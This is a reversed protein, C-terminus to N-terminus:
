EYVKVKKFHRMNVISNKIQFISYIIVSSCFAGFICIVIQLGINKLKSFYLIILILCIISMVLAVTSYALNSTWQKIGFNKDSQTVIEPLVM